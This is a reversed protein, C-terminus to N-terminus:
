TVMQVGQESSIYNIAMTAIRDYIEQEDLKKAGTQQQSQQGQQPEQQLGQSQPQQQPQAKDLLGM